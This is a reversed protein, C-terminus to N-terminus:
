ASYDNRLLVTNGSADTSQTFTKGSHTTELLTILKSISPTRGNKTNVIVKKLNTTTSFMSTTTANADIVWGSLNLTKLMALNSFCATFDSVASVDVMSFDLETLNSNYGAAPASKSIFTYMSSAKINTNPLILTTLKDTSAFPATTQMKNVTEDIEVGSLDISEVNPMSHAFYELATTKYGALKISKVTTVSAKSVGTGFFKRFDTAPVPVDEPMFYIKKDADSVFTKNGYLTVSQGAEVTEIVCLPLANASFDANPITLITGM